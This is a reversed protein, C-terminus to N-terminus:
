GHSGRQLLEAAADENRPIDVIGYGIWKGAWKGSVDVGGSKVVPPPTVPPASATTTRSTRSACGAAVLAVAIMLLGIRRMGGEKASIVIAVFRGSFPWGKASKALSFRTM